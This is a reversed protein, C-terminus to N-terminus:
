AGVNGPGPPEAVRCPLVLHRRDKAGAPHVPASRTARM